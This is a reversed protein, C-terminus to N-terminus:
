EALPEMGHERLGKLLQEYDERCDGYAAVQICITAGATCFAGGGPNHTFFLGHKRMLRRIKGDYEYHESLSETM